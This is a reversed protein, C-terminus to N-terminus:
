ADTTTPKPSDHIQTVLGLQHTHIELNAAHELEFRENGELGYKIRVTYSAAIKKGCPFNNMSMREDTCSLTVGPPICAAGKPYATRPPTNGEIESEAHEVFLWIPFSADNRVEMGLQMREILRPQMPAGQRRQVRNPNQLPVLDMGIHTQIFRLKGRPNKREIYESGRLLGHVTGAFTLASAMVVWMLPFGGFYGGAAATASLVTPWLLTRVFETHIVTQITEFHGAWELLQVLRSKKKAM